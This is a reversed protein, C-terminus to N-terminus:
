GVSYGNTVFTEFHWVITAPVATSGDNYIKVAVNGGSATQSLITHASMGYSPEGPAPTGFTLIQGGKFVVKWTRLRQVV